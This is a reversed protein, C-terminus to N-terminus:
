FFNLLCFFSILIPYLLKWFFYIIQDYRL